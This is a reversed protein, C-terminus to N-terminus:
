MKIRGAYGGDWNDADDDDNVVWLVGEGGCCCGRWGRDEVVIMMSRRLWRSRTRTRATFSAKALSRWITGAVRDAGFRTELTFVRFLAASYMPTSCLLSVTIALPCSLNYIFFIIQFTQLKKTLNLM